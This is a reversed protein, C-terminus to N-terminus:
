SAAIKRKHDATQRKTVLRRATWIRLAEGSCQGLGLSGRGMTRWCPKMYPTQFTRNAGASNWKLLTKIASCRRAWAPKQATSLNTSLTPSPQLRIFILMLFINSNAHNFFFAPFVESPGLNNKPSWLSPYNPLLPPPTPPSNWVREWPREGKVVRGWLEKERRQPLPSLPRCLAQKHAGM